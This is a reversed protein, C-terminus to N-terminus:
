NGYKVQSNKSGIEMHDMSACESAVKNHLASYAANLEQQDANSLFKLWGQTNSPSIPASEDKGAQEAIRWATIWAELEQKDQSAVAARKAMLKVATQHARFGKQRDYCSLAGSKELYDAQTASGAAYAKPTFPRADLWAQAQANAASLDVAKAPQAREARRRAHMEALERSRSESVTAMQPAPQASAQAPAAHLLDPLAVHTDIPAHAARGSPDSFQSMGGYQYECKEHVESSFRNTAANIEEQEVDTLLLLYRQSNKPDPAPIRQGGATANLWAIDEEAQKRQQASLSALKRQLVQVTLKEHAGNSQAMCTPFDTNVETAGLASSLSGGGSQHSVQQSQVSTAQVTKKLEDLLGASAVGPSLLCISFILSLREACRM